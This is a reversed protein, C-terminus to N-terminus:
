RHRRVRIKSDKGEINMVYGFSDKSISVDFDCNKYYARKRDVQKWVQDNDFIFFWRKDHAQQCKSVHGRHAEPAAKTVAVSKGYEAPLQPEAEQALVEQGLAEYCAVRSTKDETRACEKLTEM